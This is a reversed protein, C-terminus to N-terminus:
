RYHKKLKNPSERLSLFLEEKDLGELRDMANLDVYYKDLISRSRKLFDGMEKSYDEQFREDLISDIVNKPEVYNDVASKNVINM